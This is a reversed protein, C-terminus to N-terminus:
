NRLEAKFKDSLHALIKKMASNVEDETLTKEATRFTLSYAVSKFGKRIQEGTYVDFLAASELLKGGKEKIANIIEGALVGDSITMAIDRKVSPYRPLPAYSRKEIGRAYIETLDIVAITVRTDLGYNNLVEPHAEGVFGIVSGSLLVSATRGPHTFPLGSEPVFEIQGIMNLRGFLEELAGKLGYFGLSGYAGATLTEREDPLETLPLSKPLYTKGVEFLAAEENRRNWNLSLSSLIGNLTTTRMIGYDEGLPNLIKVANRLPSDAPLNIKDFVKPGEFTYNLTEYFGLSAMCNKITDETLQRNNKRGVTPTGAALTPKIKDYGYFRAVEEALDAEIQIDARFTPIHATGDATKIGLKGLIAEMREAPIDTGLLRNINEPDYKVTWPARVNPYCDAVGKVVEGCGLLEVLQAARDVVYACLNPDLGKEYKGSADTRLGLKKATLRINVGNFNASEFLIASANETVMSNEGGMVGGIAVARDRDAIVTMSTDLTRTVGDLTTIMENEYADRVIIKKGGINEIDFAHMPQGTELMVYNTIDVINNVPRLGAATIRHRMWQPSPAIRVNKIVRAAYRPCNEPNKIEISIYDAADEGAEERVVPSPYRFPADFTAAAERALGLVSYCDARNSTLEFEVVDECLEMLPRVDAGPTLGGTQPFIYIGDEDAEPYDHKNYGLESISCLMGHSELGRMKGKKIRKQEGDAVVAGGDLVVPVFANDYINSAGTIIQIDEGAGVDVMVVLLKDADPHKTIKKIRGVVIRELMGGLREAAEVKSGSMTMAGAFASVGCGIDTYENLWSMPIKM